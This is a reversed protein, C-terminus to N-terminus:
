LQQAESKEHNHAHQTAAPIVPMGGGGEARDLNKWKNEAPTFVIKELQLSAALLSLASSDKAATHAQM